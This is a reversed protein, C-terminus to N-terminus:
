VTGPRRGGAMVPHNGLVGDAGRCMRLNRPPRPPLNAGRDSDFRM